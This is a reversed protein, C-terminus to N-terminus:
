PQEPLVTRVAALLEPARVTAVDWAITLSVGFYEHVLVDRMRRVNQWPIGPMRALTAASVLTVAEGIVLTRYLVADQLLPSARFSDFTHGVTYRAIRECADAMDQLADPDGRM